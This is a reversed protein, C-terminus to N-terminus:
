QHRPYIVENARLTAGLIMLLYAPHSLNVVSITEFGCNVINFVTGALLLQSAGSSLINNAAAVFSIVIWAVFAFVGGWGVQIVLALLTNHPSVGFGFLKEAGSIFEAPVWPTGLGYGFPGASLAIRAFFEWVVTRGTFSLDRGTLTPFLQAFDESYITASFIAALILCFCVVIGFLGLRAAMKLIEVTSITMMAALVATISGSAIVAASSLVLVIAWLYPSVRLRNGAYLFILLTCVGFAGFQNKHNFLGRWLGEHSGAMVAFPFGALASFISVLLISCCFVSVLLVLKKSGYRSSFSLFFLPLAIMMLFTRISALQNESTVISAGCIGFLFLLAFNQRFFKTNLNWDARLIGFLGILCVVYGLYTRFIQPGILETQSDSRWYWAGTFSIIMVFLTLAGIIGVHAQIGRNATSQEIM